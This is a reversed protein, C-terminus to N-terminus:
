TKSVRKVLSDMNSKHVKLFSDVKDSKCSDLIHHEYLFGTGSERRRRYSSLLYCKNMNHIMKNVYDKDYELYDAMKSISMWMKDEINNSWKKILCYLPYYKENLGNDKYLDFLDLPIYIYHNNECKTYNSLPLTDIADIHLIDKDKVKDNEDLLYNWRSINLLKIIRAAKLKKLLEFIEDTSYGTEKRLLSISTIFMHECEQNHIRFKYLQFYLNLGKYGIRQYVNKKRDIQDFWESKIRISSVTYNM